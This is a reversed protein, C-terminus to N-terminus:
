EHPIVTKGMALPIVKKAGNMYLHYAAARFSDGQTTVDDLIVITKGKIDISDNLKLSNIDQNLSPRYMATSKKYITTERLVLNVGDQMNSNNIIKKALIATGSSNIDSAEHSPVVALIVDENLYNNDELWKLTLNYYYNIAYAIKNKLDIIRSSNEDDVHCWKPIYETLHYIELDYIMKREFPKEEEKKIVRIHREYSEDYAPTTILLQKLNGIYYIRTGPYISLVDGKKVNVAEDDLYFTGSGELFIYTFTCKDHVFEEFHGEEVTEMVFSMDESIPEYGIFDVGNKNFRTTDEFNIKKYM